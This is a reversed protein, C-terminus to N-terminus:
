SQLYIQILSLFEKGYKEMKKEGVGTILKMEDRTSPKFISMEKLTSDHFVVYPPVRENDALIKRLRKLEHFLKADYNENMAENVKSRVKEEIPKTLFVKENKFLVDNSRENLKLIPYKGSDKTLVGFQILERIFGQWQKASFEKGIGYTSLQGHKNHLIKENESGRLVDVIYTAGFREGTRKICSLIKQTAVTGDIKDKPSVCTDCNGCNYEKFDEGFYKLLIKRRCVSNNECYSIMADLKQQAIIRQQEDHMEQIFYEIKRKDGFGYFLVCDSPLGDRGARGTEQYYSELNKPLDYHIVFRVNSKNIGMGFAVTAVIIEVDDKIFKEQNFTRTDAELGAHYPLAHFGDDNLKQSLSETKDRSFCYIIGSDNKHLRLYEILQKYSNTKQRVSYFINKRNFSAVYKKIDHLQLQQVIDQQVGPIATATFAAIPVNSFLKRLINLQRYEPRFDHGWESICHAEDIAFLGINLKQLFPIFSSQIIREPAVYLLKIESQLLQTQIKQIEIGSLLSNIFASSVGNTRLSDVQDKMIAILPSVVVTVGNNIISPLQYCLSKGGGTPMLVFVDKKDCIDNIIEEQLPHFTTYGFYKQLASHLNMKYIDANNNSTNM